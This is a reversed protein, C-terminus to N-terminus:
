CPVFEFRYERQNKTRGIEFMVRDGQKLKAKIHPRADPDRDSMIEFWARVDSLSQFVIQESHPQGEM